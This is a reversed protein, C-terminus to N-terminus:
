GETDLYVPGSPGGQRLERNLRTQRRTEAVAQDLRRILAAQREQLDQARGALEPPLPGLDGPGRWPM